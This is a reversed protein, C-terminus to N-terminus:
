RIRTIDVEGNIHYTTESLIAPISEQIRLILHNSQKEQLLFSIIRGLWQYMPIDYVFIDSQGKMVASMVLYRGDGSYSIDTIKQFNYLIQYELRREELNYFYLWIEGKRETLIAIMKGSPHWALIPYSYDPHEALRYGGRFIKKKKGTEPNQM